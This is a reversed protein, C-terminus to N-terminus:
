IEAFFDGLINVAIGISLGEKEACRGQLEIQPSGTARVLRERVSDVIKPLIRLVAM